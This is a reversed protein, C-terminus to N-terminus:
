ELVENGYDANEKIFTGNNLEEFAQRIEAETNMVIPGFWAVPEDLRKLAYILIEAKNNKTELLVRDGDGLKAATKEEVNKGSIIVEGRLTFAFASLGERVPIEVSVNDELHIDYFDLPLYKGQWGEEDEYKGTILRLRGGKFEFEKIERKSISHYAPPASMKYKAPLNLWLQTGLIREGGPMEEHEAGSGATLWQAEGDYITAETGLHDRHTMEGKCLFSVTEIGRHPHMPFGASYDSKDKSDFADLMLFPDYIDRTANGLVRVLHVGAGDIAKEGKTEFIVERNL